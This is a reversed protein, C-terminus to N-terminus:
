WTSHKVQKGPGTSWWSVQPETDVVLAVSRIVDLLCGYALSVGHGEPLHPPEVRDTMDLHHTKATGGM